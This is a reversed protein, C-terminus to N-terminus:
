KAAEKTPNNQEARMDILQCMAEKHCPEGPRVMRGDRRKCVHRVDDAFRCDPSNGAWIVM